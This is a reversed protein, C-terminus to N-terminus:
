GEIEYLISKIIEGPTERVTAGNFELVYQDSAKALASLITAKDEKSIAGKLVFSAGAEGTENDKLTIITVYM